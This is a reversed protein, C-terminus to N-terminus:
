PKLQVDLVWDCVEAAISKALEENPDRFIEHDSEWTIETIKSDEEKFKGDDDLPVQIKLEAIKLSTWSRHMHVVANGRADPGDAYVLWKDEMARPQFGNLLKALAAHPISKDWLSTVPKQFPKPAWKPAGVRRTSPEGRQGFTSWHHLAKLEDASTSM